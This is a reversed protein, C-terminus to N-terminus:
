CGPRGHISGVARRALRREALRAGRPLDAPAPLGGRQLDARGRDRCLRRRGQSPRGRDGRPRAGVDGPPAERRRARAARPRAGRLPGVSLGLAGQRVALRRRGPRSRPRARARRARRARHLRHQVPEPLAHLGLGRGRHGLAPGPVPLLDLHARGGPVARHHKRRVAGRLPPRRLHRRLHPRRARPLRAPLGRRGGALVARLPLLPHLARPRDRRAALARDAEPLQAECRPLPEAGPGLRLSIDQLPCEGGKDCVPCDLPHNVLLFEVVANQAHKVRDTQTYVVM